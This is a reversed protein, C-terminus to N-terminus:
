VVLRFKQLVLLLRVNLPAVLQLVNPFITQKFNGLDDFFVFCIRKQSIRLLIVILNCKYHVVLLQIASSWAMSQREAPLFKTEVFKTLFLCSQSCSAHTWFYKLLMSCAFHMVNRKLLKKISNINKMGFPSPNIKPM